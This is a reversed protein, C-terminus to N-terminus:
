HGSVYWIAWFLVSIVILGSLVKAAGDPGTKAEAGAVLTGLFQGLLYVVILVIALLELM